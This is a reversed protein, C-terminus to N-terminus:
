DWTTTNSADAASGGEYFAKKYLPDMKKCEIAIEHRPNAYVTQKQIRENMECAKKIETM